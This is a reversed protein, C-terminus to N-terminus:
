GVIKKHPRIMQVVTHKPARVQTYPVSRSRQRARGKPRRPISSSGHQNYNNMISNINGFASEIATNFSTSSTHRQQQTQGGFM